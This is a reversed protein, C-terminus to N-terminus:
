YFVRVSEAQHISGVERTGRGTGVRIKEAAGRSNGRMLGESLRQEGKRISAYNEEIKM